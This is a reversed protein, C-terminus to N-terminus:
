ITQLNEEQIEIGRKFLQSTIYVIGAAFLFGEHPDIVELTEGFRKSFWETYIRGILAIVWVSLLAYALKELKRTVDFTFPSRINLKSLLSVVQLGISFALGSLILVFSMTYYYTQPNSRLIPELDKDVGPMDGAAVPNYLSVVFSIVQAGFNVAYGVVAIWAIVRMAVLITETKSRM